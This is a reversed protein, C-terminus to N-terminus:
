TTHPPPWLARHSEEKEYSFAESCYLLKDFHAIQDM